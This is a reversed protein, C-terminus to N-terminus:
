LDIIVSRNWSISNCCKQQLSNGVLKFRTKLKQPKRRYFESYLHWKKTKEILKNFLEYLDFELQSDWSSEKRPRWLIRGGFFELIIEVLKEVHMTWDFFGSNKFIERDFEFNSSKRLMGSKSQAWSFQTLGWFNEIRLVIRYIVLYWLSVRIM